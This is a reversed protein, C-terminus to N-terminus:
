SHCLFFPPPPLSPSSISPSFPHLSLLSPIFLLFPPFYSSLSPLSSPTPHVDCTQTVFVRAYRMSNLAASEEMYEQTTSELVLYRNLDHARCTVESSLEHSRCAAQVSQEHPEQVLLSQDMLESFSFDGEYSFDTTKTCDNNSVEEQQTRAIIDSSKSSPIEVVSQPHGHSRNLNLNQLESNGKTSHFLVRKAKEETLHVNELKGEVTGSHIDDVLVKSYDSVHDHSSCTVENSHDHSRHLAGVNKREDTSREFLPSFATPPHKQPSFTPTTPLLSPSPPSLIRCPPHLLPPPPSSSSSSPSPLLSSLSYSYLLEKFIYLLPV